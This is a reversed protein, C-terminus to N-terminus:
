SDMSYIIGQKPKPPRGGQLYDQIKDWGADGNKIDIAADYTPKEVDMSSGVFEWGTQKYNIMSFLVNKLSDNALPNKVIINEANNFLSGESYQSADVETFNPNNLGFKEGKHHISIKDNSIELELNKRNKYLFESMKQPDALVEEFKARLADDKKTKIYNKIFNIIGM